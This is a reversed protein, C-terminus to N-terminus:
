RNVKYISVPTGIQSPDPWTSITITWQQSSSTPGPTWAVDARLSFSSDPCAQQYTTGGSTLAPAPATPSETAFCESYASASPRYHSATVSGLEYQILAEAAANRKEIVSNLLGTSITGVIIVLALGVITLAVLLEVLTTGAQARRRDQLLSRLSRPM